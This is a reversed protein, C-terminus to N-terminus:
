ELWAGLDRGIVRELALIDDRYFDQLRDRDEQSVARSADVKSRRRRNLSLVSNTLSGHMASPLLPNIFRYELRRSRRVIRSLMPFVPEANANHVQKLEPVFTSDVGIFDYLDMILGVPDSRLEDYLRVFVREPTFLDFYRQVQRAYMGKKAMLAPVFGQRQAGEGSLCASVFTSFEVDLNSGWSRSYFFDSVLRDVPERLIVIFKCTPLVERLVTPAQDDYLYSPSAEGVASASESGEFLRAYSRATFGYPNSSFYNTEKVRSMFVDPHEACYHYLSTTGSRAAGAIIFNPLM